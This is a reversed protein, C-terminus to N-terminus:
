LIPMILVMAMTQCGYSFINDYVEIARVSRNRQGSETGHTYVFTGQFFNHRIVARAGNEADISCFNFASSIYNDEIFMANSTGFDYPVSWSYDGWGNDSGVGGSIEIANAGGYMQFACHDILGNMQGTIDVPKGTLYHFVCHDIRFPYGGFININGRVGASANGAQVSVAPYSNTVGGIITLKTIRTLAPQTTVNIIPLGNGTIPTEDVIVTQNTGAGQLTIGHIYLTSFWTNTGAPIQVTDGTASSAVANSVDAFSGSIANITNAHCLGGLFLLTAVTLFKITSRAM